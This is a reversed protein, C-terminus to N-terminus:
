GSLAEHNGHVPRARGSVERLLLVTLTLLGVALILESAESNRDAVGCDAAVAIVRGSRYALYAVFFPASPAAWRQRFAWPLLVGGIGVALQALIAKDQLWDLNHLNLEDQRNDDVFADPTEIGFVRQGWSVEEGAAVFLVGALAM